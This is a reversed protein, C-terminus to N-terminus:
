HEEVLRKLYRDQDLVQLAARTMGEEVGGSPRCTGAPGCRMGKVKRPRREPDPEGRNLDFGRKHPRAVHGARGAHKKPPPKAVVRDDFPCAEASEELQCGRFELKGYSGQHAAVMVFSNDYRVLGLAPKPVKWPTWTSRDGQLGDGTCESRGM